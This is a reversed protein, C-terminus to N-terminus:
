ALMGIVERQTIPDLRSTPEDAFLFRPKALMTRLLALRPLEGGSVAGPRHALLVDGLSIKGCGSPGTVGLIRGTKLALDLGQVQRQGGRSLALGQAQLVTDDSGSHPVPAPWHQPNAAILDRTYGAKPKAFVEATTGTEVVAGQRLVIMRRGIMRALALDHTIVLLGGGKRLEGLLLATACNM